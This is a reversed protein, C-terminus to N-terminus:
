YSTDNPTAAASVIGNPEVYAVDPRRALAAAAAALSLGPRLAVRLVGLEGISGAAFGETAQFSQPVLAAPSGPRLGVLLEGPAVSGPSVAAQPGRSGCALAALLAALLLSFRSSSM